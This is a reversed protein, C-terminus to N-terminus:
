IMEGLKLKYMSLVAPMAIMNSFSSLGRYM